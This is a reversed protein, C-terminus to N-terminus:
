RSPDSAPREVQSSERLLRPRPRRPDWFPINGTQWADRLRDLGHTSKFAVEEEYVPLANLFEVHSGDPLELRSVLDELPRVVLVKQMDTGPWLPEEYPISHGHGLPEGFLAPYAAALSLVHALRPENPLAGGILEFRHGSQSEGLPRRSAGVTAYLHVGQPNNDPTWAMVTIPMGRVDYEIRRFSDGLERVYHETVADDIGHIGWNGEL